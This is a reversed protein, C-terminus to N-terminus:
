CKLFYRARTNGCARVISSSELDREAQRRSICRGIAEWYVDTTIRASSTLMEKLIERRTEPLLTHTRKGEEAISGQGSKNLLIERGLYGWKRYESFAFRADDQMAKGAIKRLGIFFQEWNGKPFSETVMRHWFPFLTRNRVRKATFELLVAAAAPWPQSLLAGRLELPHFREWERVLFSVWIEALRPDFRSWQAFLALDTENPTAPVRHLLMSYAKELELRGPINLLGGQM